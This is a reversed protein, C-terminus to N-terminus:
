IYGVSESDRGMIWQRSVGLYEFLPFKVNTQSFILSSVPATHGDLTDLLQGTRLSWICINFNDASGASVLDGSPDTALCTFQTPKPSSLVRFNKYKVLDFARVTGDLSSSLLLNKKKPM